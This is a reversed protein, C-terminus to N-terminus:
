ILDLMIESLVILNSMRGNLHLKVAAFFMIAVKHGVHFHWRPMAVRVAMRMFMVSLYATVRWNLQLSFPLRMM